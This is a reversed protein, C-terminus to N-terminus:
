LPVYSITWLHWNLIKQVGIGSWIPFGKQSRFASNLNLTDLNYISHACSIKEGPIPQYASRNQLSQSLRIEVNISRDLARPRPM